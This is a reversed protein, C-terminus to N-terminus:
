GLGKKLFFMPLGLQEGCGLCSTIRQRYTENTPEDDFFVLSGIREGEPWVECLIRHGCVCRLAAREGGGVDHNDEELSCGVLM